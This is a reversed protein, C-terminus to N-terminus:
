KDKGSSRFVEEGNIKDIKGIGENEMRKWALSIESESLGTSRSITKNRTVGTIFCESITEKKVSQYNKESEDESGSLINAVQVSTKDEKDFFIQGDRTDKLVITVNSGSLGNNNANQIYQLVEPAFGNPSGIISIMHINLDTADSLLNAYYESIDKIIVPTQDLGTGALATSKFTADHAIFMFNIGFRVDPKFVRPFNFFTTLGKSIRREGTTLNDSVERLKRTVDKKRLTATYSLSPIYLEINDRKSFSLFTSEFFSNRKLRAQDESVSYSSDFTANRGSSVMNILEKISDLTKLPSMIMSSYSSNADALLSDLRRSEIDKLFPNGRMEFDTELKGKESEAEAIKNKLKLSIDNFNRILAELDKKKLEDMSGSKALALLSKFEDNARILDPSVLIERLEMEVTARKDEINMVKKLANEYNIFMKKIQGPDKQIYGIIGESIKDFRTRYKEELGKSIEGRVNKGSLLDITSLFDEMNDEYWERILRYVQDDRNMLLTTISESSLSDIKSFKDLKEMSNYEDDTFNTITRTVDNDNITKGEIEKKLALAIKLQALKLNALGSKMVQLSLSEGCNNEMNSYLADMEAYLRKKAILNMRLIENFDRSSETYARRLNLLCDSEM